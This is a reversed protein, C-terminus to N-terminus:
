PTFLRGQRVDCQDFTDRVTQLVRKKDASWLPALLLNKPGDGTLRHVVMDPPLLEVSRALLRAYQELSLTEFAGATYLAALDTGRLVHLLQLKIGQVGSHAVAWVTELMQEETEGPLGLIVHTVVEVSIARLAAVAEHYRAIPYGRRILQATDEHVTQLGLEVFVPKQRNLRELLTLVEEPLCDPRTAVSLAVVDDAALAATWRTELQDLPAYTATYSQFYAIFCGCAAKKGLRRRAAALQEPMSLNAPAAFDGSGGTSCFLCGKTGRTGDRNPCTHGGALSLKYIKRGFRRRMAEDFSLYRM